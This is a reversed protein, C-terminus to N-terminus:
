KSKMVDAHAAKMTMGKRLRSMMQMRHRKAAAGTLGSKEMHSRLDERQKETLKPLPGKKKEPAPAPAPQPDQVKKPRGRKKPAPKSDETHYTM